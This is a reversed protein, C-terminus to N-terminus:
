IDIVLLSGRSLRTPLALRSGILRLFPHRGPHIVVKKSTLIVRVHTSHM